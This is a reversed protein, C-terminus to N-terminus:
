HLYSIKKLEPIYRVDKLLFERNDFMKLRVTGIGQVKCPCNDGLLVVGVPKLELTEFYDKRPSSHYSCGFNMIWETQTKTNFAVLVCASEYGESAEVIDASDM